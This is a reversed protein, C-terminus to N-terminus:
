LWGEIGLQSFLYIVGFPFKLLSREFAVFHHNFTFMVPSNLYAPYPDLNNKSPRIRTKKVTLDLDPDIGGPDAVRSTCHYPDTSQYHDVM